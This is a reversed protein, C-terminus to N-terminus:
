QNKLKRKEGATLQRLFVVGKENNPTTKPNNIMAIFGKLEEPHKTEMHRRLDKFNRNCCPCVGKHVRDLKNTAKKLRLDTDARMRKEFDLQNQKQALLEQTDKLKQADSKGTYHQQHGNPCYFWKNSNNKFKEQLDSPMAFAVGCNCCLETVMTVTKTFTLGREFM